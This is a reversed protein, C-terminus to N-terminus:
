VELFTMGKVEVYKIIALTYKILCFLHKSVVVLIGCVGHLCNKTLQVEFSVHLWPINYTSVIPDKIQQHQMAVSHNSNRRPLRDIEQLAKTVVAVLHAESRSRYFIHYGAVVIILLLAELIM